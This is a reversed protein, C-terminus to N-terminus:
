RRPRNLPRVRGSHTDFPGCRTTESTAFTPSTTPTGAAMKAIPRFCHRMCGTTPSSRCSERRQRTAHFYSSVIVDHANRLLLLVDTGRGTAVGLEAKSRGSHDRLTLQTAGHWNVVLLARSIGDKDTCEIRPSGEEDVSLSISAKSAPDMLSLVVGGDDGVGLVCRKAGSKDVVVFKNASIVPAGADGGQGTLVVLGLLLILVAGARRMHRNQRELKGLRLQFHKERM